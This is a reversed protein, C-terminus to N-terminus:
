FVKSYQRSNGDLEAYVHAPQTTLWERLEDQIKRNVVVKKEQISLSVLYDEVLVAKRIPDLQPDDSVISAVVEPRMWRDLDLHREQQLARAKVILIEIWYQAIKDKVGTETQLNEVRDKIGSGAAYLQQKIASVTETPNRPAGCTKSSYPDWGEENHQQATDGEDDSEEEEDDIGMDRLAQVIGTLTPDSGLIEDIEAEKAMPERPPINLTIDGGRGMADLQNALEVLTPSRLNDGASFLVRNGENDVYESDHDGCTDMYVSTFPNGADDLHTTPTELINEDEFFALLDEADALVAPDVPGQLNAEPEPNIIGPLTSRVAM